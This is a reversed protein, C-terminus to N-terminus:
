GSPSLVGISASNELFFLVKNVGKIYKLDRIREGVVIRKLNDIESYDDNFSIHYVSMDGENTENGLSAVLFDNKSDKNFTKPLKILQSIGISPVFFKVPEIFGFDTHSKKFPAKRYRFYNGFIKGHYHEGYSSVPWGFNEIQIPSPEKNINIEDGGMPGHETSVIVEKDLDYALGDVNRHGLSLLEWNKTLIDISLIKGFINEPDQAHDRYKFEGSSFLLKGDKFQSIRGGSQHLEFEGYSNRVEVCDKPLFLHNFNLYELNMPAVLLSTNVCNDSVLNTYSVFIKNDVILVDRIGYKSNRYFKENKILDEINSNILFANLEKGQLENSDFFIFIGDASVLIVKNLFEEIYASARIPQSSSIGSPLSLSKFLLETNFKKFVYDSSNLNLELSNSEATFVRKNFTRVESLIEDLYHNTQNIDRKVKPIIFLSEKLFLKFNNPVLLSIQTRISDNDNKFNSITKWGLFVLSFLLIIISFLFLYKKDFIRGM